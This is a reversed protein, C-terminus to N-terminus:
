TFKNTKRSTSSWQKTVQSKYIIQTWIIFYHMILPALITIVQCLNMYKKARTLIGFLLLIPLKSPRAFWAVMLAGTSTQFKPRATSKIKQSLKSFMISKTSIRQKLKKRNKLNLNVKEWMPIRQPGKDRSISSITMPTPLTSKETSALNILTSTQKSASKTQNPRMCISAAFSRKQSCIWFWSLETSAGSPQWLERLISSWLKPM